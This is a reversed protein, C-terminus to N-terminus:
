LSVLDLNRTAWFNSDDDVFHNIIKVNEYKEKLEIKRASSLNSSLTIIAFTFSVFFLFSFALIKLQFYIDNGDNKYQVNSKNM